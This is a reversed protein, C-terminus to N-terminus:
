WNQKFAYINNFHIYQTTRVDKAINNTFKIGRSKEDKLDFNGCRFKAFWRWM